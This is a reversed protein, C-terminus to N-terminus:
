SRNTFAQPTVIPIGRFPHLILLDKDGSIICTANGSVALELFKNDDPDRCDAIFENVEENVEIIASDQTFKALFQLREEGALYRSFRSRRLVTDLEELTAASVLVVGKVFALDFARRPVSRPLLLASVIVSTDLVYRFRNTV